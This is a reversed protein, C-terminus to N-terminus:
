QLFWSLEKEFSISVDYRESTGIDLLFNQNTDYSHLEQTKTLLPFIATEIKGREIYILEEISLTKIVDFFAWGTNCGIVGEVNLENDCYQIVRGTCPDLQVNGSIPQDVRRSVAMTAACQNDIHTKFFEDIRVDLITDANISLVHAFKTNRLYGLLGGGNEVDGSDYSTFINTHSDTFFKNVEFEIERNRHSLGLCINKINQNSLYRILRVILPCGYFPVLAKPGDFVGKMRSGKGGCALYAVIDNMETIIIGVAQTM